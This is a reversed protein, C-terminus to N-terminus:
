NIAVSLGAIDATTLNMTGLKLTYGALYLSQTNVIWSHLQSAAKIDDFEMVEPIGNKEIHLYNAGKKISWTKIAKTDEEDFINFKGAETILGDVPIVRDDYEYGTRLGESVKRYRFDYSLDIPVTNPTTGFDPRILLTRVLGIKNPDSEATNNHFLGTLEHIYTEKSLKSKMTLEIVINGSIDELAVSQRLVQMKSKSILAANLPAQRITVNREATIGSTNSLGAEVSGEIAGLMSISPTLSMTTSKTETIKGLDITVTETAIKDWSVFEVKDRIAEPIVLDFLIKEIRNNPEKDYKLVNLVVRKKWLLTGKRSTVAAEKISSAMAALLESNSKSSKALEAVMSAQGRDSLDFITKNTGSSPDLVFANVALYKNIADLTTIAVASDRYKYNRHVKSSCGVLFGAILIAGLRLNKM